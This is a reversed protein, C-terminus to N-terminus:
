GHGASREELATLITAAASGVSRVETDIVLDVHRTPVVRETFARWVQRNPEVDDSLHRGQARATVRALAADETVDLRVTLATGSRELRDLLRADSLGTTEIASTAGDSAIWELIEEHLAPLATAKNAVFRERSGWRELIAPEWERWRLGRRALEEGISSKGSGPAGLLVVVRIVSASAVSSM